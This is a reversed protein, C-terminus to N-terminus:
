ALGGLLHDMNTIIFDILRFFSTSLNCVSVLPLFIKFKDKKAASIIVNNHETEPFIREPKGPNFTIPASTIANSIPIIICTIGLTLLLHELPIPNIDFLNKRAPM